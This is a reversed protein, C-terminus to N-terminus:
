ILLKIGLQFINDKACQQLYGLRPRCKQKIYVYRNLPYMELSNQTGFYNPVIEIHNKWCPYKLYCNRHIFATTWMAIMYNRVINIKIFWVLAIYEYSEHFVTNVTFVRFRKIIIRLVEVNDVSTMYDLKNNMWFTKTQCYVSM